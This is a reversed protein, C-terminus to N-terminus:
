KNEVVYEDIKDALERLFSTICYHDYNDENYGSPINSYFSTDLKAMKAFLNMTFDDNELLADCLGEPSLHTCITITDSM